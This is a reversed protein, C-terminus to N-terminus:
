FHRSGGRSSVFDTFSLFEWYFNGLNGVVRDAFLALSWFVRSHMTHKPSRRLDRSGGRGGAFILMFNVSLFRADGAPSIGFLVFNVPPFSSVDRESSLTFGKNVTICDM